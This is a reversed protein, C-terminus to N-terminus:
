SSAIIKEITRCLLYYRPIVTDIEMYENDSHAGGGVPGLGDITPTGTEAAFSGDSGGGSAMWGFPIGLDRGIM